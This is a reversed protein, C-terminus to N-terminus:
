LAGSHALSMAISDCEQCFVEIKWSQVWGHRSCGANSSGSASSGLPRASLNRDLAGETAIASAKTLALGRQPKKSPKGGANLLRVLEEDDSLSDKNFLEPKVGESGAKPGVRSFCPPPLSQPGNDCNFSRNRLGKFAQGQGKRKASRVVRRRFPVPRAEYTPWKGKLINRLAQQGQRSPPKCPQFLGPSKGGPPGYHGCRTCFHLKLGFHSGVKHSTHVRLRHFFYVDNEERPLFTLTISAGKVSGMCKM